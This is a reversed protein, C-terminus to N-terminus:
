HKRGCSCGVDTKGTVTARTVKACDGAHGALPYYLASPVWVIHVPHQDRVIDWEKIYRIAIGDAKM